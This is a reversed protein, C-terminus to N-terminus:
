KAAKAVEEAKESNASEEVTEKEGDLFDKYQEPHDHFCLQMTQFNGECIDGREDEESALFCKFANFFQPGCPGAV